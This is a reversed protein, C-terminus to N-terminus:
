FLRPHFQITQVKAVPGTFFVKVKETYKINLHFKM